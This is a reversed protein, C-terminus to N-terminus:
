KNDKFLELDNDEGTKYAEKTRASTVLTVVLEKEGLIAMFISSPLKTRLNDHERKIDRLATQLERYQVRKAEVTRSLDEYMSHNFSPNQETIFKMMVNNDNGYRADMIGVYADKFAESNKETIGAKQVFVKFMEDYMLRGQDEKASAQNRLEVSQNKVSVLNSVFWTGAVGFVVLFVLGIVLLKSM